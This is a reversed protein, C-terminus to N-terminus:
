KEYFFLKKFIRVFINKNKNEKVNEMYKFILPLEDKKNNYHDINKSIKLSEKSKNKNEEYYLEFNCGRCVIYDKDSLRHKILECAKKMEKRCRFCTESIKECSCETIQITM